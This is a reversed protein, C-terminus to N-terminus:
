PVLPHVVVEVLPHAVLVALPHGELSLSHGVWWYAMHHHYAEGYHVRHAEVWQGAV